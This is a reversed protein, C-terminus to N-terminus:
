ITRFGVGEDTEVQKWGMAQIAPVGPYLEAWENYVASMAAGALTAIERFQAPMNAGALTGCHCLLSVGILADRIDKHALDAIAFAILSIRSLSPSRERAALVAARLGFVRLSGGLERDVRSRLWTRQIDTASRYRECVQVCNDFWGSRAVRVFQDPTWTHKEKPLLRELDNVFAEGAQERLRERDWSREEESRLHHFDLLRLEDICIV